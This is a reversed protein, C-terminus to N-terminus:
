MVTITACTRVAPCLFLQMTRSCSESVFMSSRSNKLKSNNKELRHLLSCVQPTVFSSKECVGFSLGDIYVSALLSITYNAGIACFLSNNWVFKKSPGNPYLTSLSVQKEWFIRITCSRCLGAKRMEGGGQVVLVTLKNFVRSGSFRLSVM